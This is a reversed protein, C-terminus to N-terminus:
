LHVPIFRKLHEYLVRMQVPKSLFENAGAALANARAENMTDATLVVVPILSVPGELARILRTATLGDMVPMNVDMLVLSFRDKQVREVADRGNVCCDVTCGMRQLLVVALKQNIPNDEVVLVHPTGQSQVPAVTPM